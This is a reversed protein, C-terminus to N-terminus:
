NPAVPECIACQLAGHNDKILRVKTRYSKQTLSQKEREARDINKLALYATMDLCGSKNYMARNRM